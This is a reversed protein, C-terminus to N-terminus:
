HGWVRMTRNSWPTTVISVSKTACFLSVECFGAIHGVIYYGRRRSDGGYSPNLPQTFINVIRQIRATRLSLSNKSTTLRLGNRLAHKENLPVRCTMLSDYPIDYTADPNNKSHHQKFALISLCHLSSYLSGLTFAMGVNSNVSWLNMPVTTERVRKSFLVETEDGLHTTSLVHPGIM